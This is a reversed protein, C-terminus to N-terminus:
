AAFFAWLQLDKGHCDKSLTDQAATQWTEGAILHSYDLPLFGDFGTVGPIADPGRHDETATELGIKETLTRLLTTLEWFRQDDAATSEGRRRLLRLAEWRSAVMSYRYITARDTPPGLWHVDDRIIAARNEISASM